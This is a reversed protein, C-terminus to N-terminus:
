ANREGISLSITDTAARYPVLYSDNQELLFGCQTTEAGTMALLLRNFDREVGLTHSVWDASATTSHRLRSEILEMVVTVAVATASGLLALVRPRVCNAYAPNYRSSPQQWVILTHRRGVRLDHVDPGM